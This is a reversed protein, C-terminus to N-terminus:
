CARRDCENVIELWKYKFGLRDKWRKQSKETTWNFPLMHYNELFVIDNFMQCYTGKLNKYEPKGFIWEKFQELGCLLIHAGVNAHGYYHAIGHTDFTQTLLKGIDHIEGYIKLTDILHEDLEEKHKRCYKFLNEEILARHRGLTYRHHPNCQDFMEMCDQLTHFDYKLTPSNFPIIKIDFWGEEIYPVEFSHLYKLLVKESIKNACDSENRKELRECCIGYPTAMIVIEKLCPAKIEQMLRRRSKQTTFTADAIVNYGQTLNENLLRYFERFVEENDKYKRTLRLEDSSIYKTDKHKKLYEEAWTTKGSCQLGCMVTLTPIKNETM